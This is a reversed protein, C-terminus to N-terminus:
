HFPHTESLISLLSWLGGRHSIPYCKSSVVGMGCGGPHDLMYDYNSREDEDKLVEYATTVKEFKQRAGKEQFLVIM